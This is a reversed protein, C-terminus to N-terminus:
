AIEWHSGTIHARWLVMIISEIEDIIMEMENSVSGIDKRDNTYSCHMSCIMHRNMQQLSVNHLSRVGHTNSTLIFYVMVESRHDTHGAQVLEVYNDGAQDSIFIDSM